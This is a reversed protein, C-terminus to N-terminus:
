NKTSLFDSIMKAARQSAGIGGLLNKLDVYEALMKNKYSEDSLIKQLETIISSENMEDQILEQIVPKDSILNVLSIYKIKLLVRAIGISIPNGKYCCMQPVNFLATELTATGSTVIAADSISLLDYTKNYVVKINKGALFEDYVSKDISPAAAIVFQLDKFTQAVNIMVPLM